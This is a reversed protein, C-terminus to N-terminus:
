FIWPWIDKVASTNGWQSPADRDPQQQVTDMRRHPKVLIGHGWADKCTKCLNGHSSTYYQPQNNAAFKGAKLVVITQKLNQLQKFTLLPSTPFVKVLHEDDDTIHQLSCLVHRLKEVGPIYQAVLLVRDTM